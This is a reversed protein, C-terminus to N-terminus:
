KKMNEQYPVSYGANEKTDTFQIKVNDQYFSPLSHKRSKFQPFKALGKFFKKYSGCADKIAQKAM